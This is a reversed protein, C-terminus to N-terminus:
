TLLENIDDEATKAFRSNAIQVLLLISNYKVVNTLRFTKLSKDLKIDTTEKVTMLIRPKATYEIIFQVTDFFGELENKCLSDCDELVIM